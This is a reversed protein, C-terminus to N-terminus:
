DDHLRVGGFLLDPGDALADFAEAEFSVGNGAGGAGGNADGPVIASDIEADEFGQGSYDLADRDALGVLEDAAVGLFFVGDKANGSGKAVDEDAALMDGHNSAGAGDFGFKLAEGDGLADGFGAAAQEAAAGVLGASGRVAKL